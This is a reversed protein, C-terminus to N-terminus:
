GAADDEDLDRAMREDYDAQITTNALLRRAETTPAEELAGLPSGDIWLGFGVAADHFYSLKFALAPYRAALGRILAIPPNWATDFIFTATRGGDSMLREAGSADRSTGWRDWRSEWAASIFM